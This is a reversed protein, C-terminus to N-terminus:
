DVFGPVEAGKEALQRLLSLSPAIIFQNGNKM